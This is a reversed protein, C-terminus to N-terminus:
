FIAIPSKKKINVSIIALLAFSMPKIGCDPHDEPSSFPLGSWYEQSLFEMSLPAQCDVISDSM